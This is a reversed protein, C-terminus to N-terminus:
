ELGKLQKLILSLYLYNEFIPQYRCSGIYFMTKLKNQM